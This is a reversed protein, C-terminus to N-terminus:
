EVLLRWRRKASDVAAAEPDGPELRVWAKALTSDQRAGKRRGASSPTRRNKVVLASVKFSSVPTLRTLGGELGLQGHDNKGFTYM